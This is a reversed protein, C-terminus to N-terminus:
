KENFTGYISYPYEEEEITLNSQFNLDNLYSLLDNNEDNQIYQNLYVDNPEYYNETPLDEKKIEIPQNNENTVVLYKMQDILNDLKPPKNNNGFEINENTYPYQVYNYIGNNTNDNFPVDYYQSYFDYYIQNDTQNQEGFNPTQGTYVYPSGTQRLDNQNTQNPSPSEFKPSTKVEKSNNNPSTYPSQPSKKEDKQSPPTLLQKEDGNGVGPSKPIIPPIPSLPPVSSSTNSIINSLYDIYDKKKWRQPFKLNPTYLLIIEKLQTITFNSLAISMDTTTLYLIKFIQKIVTTDKENQIM